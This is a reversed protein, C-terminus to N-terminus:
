VRYLVQVMSVKQDVIIGGKHCCPQQRDYSREFNLRIHSIAQTSIGRCDRTLNVTHRLFLLCRSPFDNACPSSLTAMAVRPMSCFFPIILPRVQTEGHKMRNQRLHAPGGPGCPPRPSATGGEAAPRGAAAAPGHARGGAGDACRGARPPRWGPAGSCRTWWCRRGRAARGSLSRTQGQGPGPSSPQGEGRPSFHNPSFIDFRYRYSSIALIDIEAGSNRRNRCFQPASISM